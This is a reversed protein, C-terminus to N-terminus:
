KGQIMSESVSWLRQAAQLDNAQSCPIVLTPKGRIQKFGDPGYFSGNTAQPDLAAHLIPLAGQADTQALLSTLIESVYTRLVRRGQRPGNQLINTKAVGPHAAISTLNQARRALEFSFLLNALKSNGYAKWGEYTREGQLDNFDINGYRHAISSVTVVRPASSSALLPMLWNTLAFHGLHNTAFQMEFGDASLKREPLAMIAANNILLDISKRKATQETVFARVSSLSSLDLQAFELDAQPQEAKIREIAAEARIPDRCALIVKTNQNALSLAVQYGIGGNAGTVIATKNHNEIVM